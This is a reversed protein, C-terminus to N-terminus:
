PLTSKKHKNIQYYTSHYGVIKHRKEPSVVPNARKATRQRRVVFLPIRVACGKGHANQDLARCLASPVNKGPL